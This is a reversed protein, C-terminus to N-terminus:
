MHLKVYINLSKWLIGMTFLQGPKYIKNIKKKREAKFCTGNRHRLALCFFIGLYEVNTMM